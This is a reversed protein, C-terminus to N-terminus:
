KKLLSQKELEYIIELVNEIIIVAKRLALLNPPKIEHVADNGIDRIEQLIRCHEWLIFQNEYLGYIKGELSQSFIEKGKKSIKLEKKENYLKGGTINTKSCIAEILTRLGAACLINYQLNFVELTQVYLELIEKDVHQFKRPKLKLSQLVKEKVTPVKPEEPYVTFIDKWVREETQLDMEWTDEDGYQRVFAKEDCGLCQVICWKTHWQIDEYTSSQEEHKQIIKHNTKHKCKSCYVKEELIEM